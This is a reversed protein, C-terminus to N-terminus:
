EEGVWEYDFLGYKKSKDFDWWLDHKLLEDIENKKIKTNELYIKKIKNMMEELNQYEDDLENMKGSMWSSLQHILMSANKCMYRKKGCVSILTAASASAGEIITYIPISSNNIIDIATYAAFVSGGYSNIHLYIPKSEIITTPYKKQAELVNKKIEIILDNLKLISDKSVSSYFYIHNDHAYVNGLDKISNTFKKKQKKNPRLEIDEESDESHNNYYYM